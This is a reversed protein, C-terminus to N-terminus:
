FQRIEEIMELILIAIEESFIVTEDKNNEKDEALKIRYKQVAYKFTGVKEFDIEMNFNLISENPNEEYNGTNFLEILWHYIYDKTEGSVFKQGFTPVDIKYFYQGIEEIFDLIDITGPIIIQLAIGEKAVGLIKVNDNELRDKNIEIKEKLSM